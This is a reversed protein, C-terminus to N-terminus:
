GRDNWRQRLARYDEGDMQTAEEVYAAEDQSQEHGTRLLLAEFAFIIGAFIATEITYRVIFLLFEMDPPMQYIAEIGETALHGLVGSMVAFFPMAVLFRVWLMGSTYTRDRTLGVGTARPVIFIALSTLFLMYVVRSIMVLGDLNLNEIAFLQDAAISSRSAQDLAQRLKDRDLWWLEEGGGLEFYVLVAAVTLLLMIISGVLTIMMGLRVARFFNPQESLRRLRTFAACYRATQVYIAVQVVFSAALAIIPLIFGYAAIVGVLLNGIITIPLVAITALIGFLPSSILALVTRGFM